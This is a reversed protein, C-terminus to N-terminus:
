YLGFGAPLNDSYEGVLYTIKKCIFLIVDLTFLLLFVLALALFLHTNSSSEILM